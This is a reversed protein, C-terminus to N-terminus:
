PNGGTVFCAVRRGNDIERIEPKKERCIDIARDCRPAFRCGPPPVLYNPISGAIGKSFGVGTLRPVSEMLGCTYPHVPEDFLMSPPGAEVITGAYMVYVLEAIERVVGLNHTIYIIGTDRREVLSRLLKLIQDQVTVDLATTPEDAILFSPETALAMAICVRQRMGGSLQFPYSRLIRDVDAIQVEKIAAKAKALIGRGAVNERSGYRIAARMQDGITFVPNLAAGPNQFIMQAERGAMSREKEPAAHLDITRGLRTSSFLIRGSTPKVQRVICRGCTTKGCGSEGVLGVRQGPQVELNVGDVVKLVGRYVKFSIELNEIRLQPEPETM